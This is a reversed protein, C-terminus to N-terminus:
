PGPKPYDEVQRKLKKKVKRDLPYVYVYKRGEDVRTLGLLEAAEAEKIEPRGSRPGYQWPIRKNVYMGDADTYYYNQGSKSRGVYLWNSAQYVAGYHGAGPSAYAVVARVEPPLMKLTRAIFWSEANKGTVDWIFLRLLELTNTEDGDAWVSQAVKRGSPQGYVAVGVVEDGRKMGFCVRGKALSHTYHGAEVM